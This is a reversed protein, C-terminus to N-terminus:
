RTLRAFSCSTQGTCVTIVVLLATVDKEKAHECTTGLDTKSLMLPRYTSVM